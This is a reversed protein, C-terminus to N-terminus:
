HDKAHVDANAELLLKVLDLRVSHDRIAEHLAPIAEEANGRELLLSGEWRRIRPDLRDIRSRADGLLDLMREFDRPDGAGARLITEIASVEALADEVTEHPDSTRDVVSMAVDIAEENRGLMLLIAAREALTTPDVGGKRLTEIAEAGRGLSALARARQHPEASADDAIRDWLRARFTVDSESGPVKDLDDRTWIGHRVRLASREEPSLWGADLADVVLPDPTTERPVLPARQGAASSILLAITALLIPIDRRDKM